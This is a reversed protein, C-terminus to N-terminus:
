EMKTQNIDQLLDSPLMERTIPRNIQGWASTLSKNVDILLRLHDEQMLKTQNMEAYLGEPLMDKTIPLDVVQGLLTLTRNLDGISDFPIKM